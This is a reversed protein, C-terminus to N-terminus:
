DPSLLTVREAERVAPLRVGDLKREFLWEGTGPFDRRDSLTAPVPREALERGTRAAALLGRQEM